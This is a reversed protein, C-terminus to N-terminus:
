REFRKYTQKFREVERKDLLYTNLFTEANLKNRNILRRVTSHHIGLIAAAQKATIRGNMKGM